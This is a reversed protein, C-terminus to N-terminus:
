ILGGHQMVPTALLAALIYNAQSLQYNLPISAPSNPSVNVGEFDKTCSGLSIVLATFALIKRIM